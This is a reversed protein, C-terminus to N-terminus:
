GTFRDRLRLGVIGSVLVLLPVILTSAAAVSGMTSMGGPQLTRGAWEAWALEMGILTAAAAIGLALLTNLPHRPGLMGCAGGALVPASFFTFSVLWGPLPLSDHGSTATLYVVNLAVFLVLGL